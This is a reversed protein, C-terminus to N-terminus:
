VPTPPEAALDSTVTELKAALAAIQAAIQAAQTHRERLRNQWAGTVNARAELEQIRAATSSDQERSRVLQTLEQARREMLEYLNANDIAIAAYDALTSLLYEDNESFGGKPAINDVGLVGIVKDRVKLPVNLLDRVLYGTMVEHKSDSQTVRVAQGTRVVRGAVSDDVKQRFRQYKKGMGQMARMHLEGSEDDVLMLFAEEAGTLFSAAEVIRQLIVEVKLLSTVAKGIGSLIHLERVRREAQRQARDVDKQLRNTEQRHRRVPELAREIAAVMEDIEYPKIVYDCAGLRFAEIAMEESGHFTSMIVPVDRGAERLAKLVELGTMKPMRLDMVILDPADQLARQLGAEGDGATIVEYGNPRLIQNALLVVNERRDDVILVKENAM